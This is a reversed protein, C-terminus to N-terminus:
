HIKIAKFQNVANSYKEHSTRDAFKKPIVVGTLQVECGIRGMQFFRVMATIEKNKGDKVKFSMLMDVELPFLFSHFETVIKKTEYYCSDPERNFMYIELVAIGLQRAAETLLCGQIHQGTVHDAMEACNEDIILSATFFTENGLQFWEPHTILINDPKLKHVLDKDIKKTVKEKLLAKRGSSTKNIRDQIKDLTTKNIGQGVIIQNAKIERKEFSELFQTVTFLNEYQSFNIFRDGVIYVKELFKKKKMKGGKEARWYGQRWIM